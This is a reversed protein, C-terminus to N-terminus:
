NGITCVSSYNPQYAIKALVCAKFTGPQLAITSVEWNEGNPLPVTKREGQPQCGAWSHIYIDGSLTEKWALAIQNEQDWAKQVPSAIAKEGSLIVTSGWNLNNDLCQYSVGNVMGGLAPVQGTWYTHLIDQGDLLTQRGAFEGTGRKDSVIFSGGRWYSYHIQYGNISYTYNYLHVGGLMDPWILSVGHSPDVPVPSTWGSNTRQTHLIMSGFMTDAITVHVNGQEDLRVMGQIDMDGRYVEEVPSWNQGDFAAYLLGYPNQVASGLYIHWLIHIRGNVGVIPPYLITSNGLSNAIPAPTTWGTPTLWAHYIYRQGSTLTDWFIHFQGSRDIVSVLPNFPRPELTIPFAQSWQWRPDYNNTVLPLYVNQNGEALGRTPFRLESCLFLIVLIGVLHQISKRNSM